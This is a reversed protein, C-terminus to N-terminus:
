PVTGGGRKSSPLAASRALPRRTRTRAVSEGSRVRTMAVRMSNMLQSPLLDNGVARTAERLPGTDLPLGAGCASSRAGLKGAGVTGPLRTADRSDAARFACM